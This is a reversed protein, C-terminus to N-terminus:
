VLLWFVHRDARRASAKEELEMAVMIRSTHIDMNMPQRIVQRSYLRYNLWHKQHKKRNRSPLSDM